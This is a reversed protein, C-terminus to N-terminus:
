DLKLLELIKEATQQPQEMPFCHSNGFMQWRINSNVRAARRASRQIFGYSDNAVLIDVPVKVQRVAHWLGRPYSGFIAGEWRPNCSLTYEGDRLQSGDEVFAQLVDPRWHRYLGKEKLENFMTERDPWTQRRNTVSRVLASRKWIGTTRSVQQALVIEPSFLVPDLLIIRSFLKPDRAAALLTLVGGMSHGVGVVPKGTPNNQRLADAVARAMAQWDPMRHKPQESGGHGPVDTLWLQAAAPMQEAIAALTTACFGNGHLFHLQPADDHQGPREYGTLQQIHHGSKVPFSWPILSDRIFTM